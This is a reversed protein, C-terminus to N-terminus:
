MAANMAIRSLNTEAGHGAQVAIPVDQLKESKKQATVVIEELAFDQAIAGASYIALALASVLPAVM